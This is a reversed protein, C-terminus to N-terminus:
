FLRKNRKSESNEKFGKALRFIENPMDQLSIVKKIFGSEIAVKPMGYVVCDEEAEAITYGGAEKIVRCGETGDSGMGTLIVGVCNKGFVRAVSIFLKNISPKPGSTLNKSIKIRYDKGVEMDSEAPALLIEGKKLLDGHRAEKVKMKCDRSLWEALGEVFGSAIHQAVVVPSDIKDPFGAFIDHLAKCGGTSSGFAVIQHPLSDQWKLVMNETKPSLEKRLTIQSLDKIKTIFKAGLNEQGFLTPKQMIDLAGLTFAEFEIYPKDEFNITTSVLIPTPNKHMIEAIAEFGDMGAMKLDMTIVQPKLLPVMEVAEKGNAALGVVEITKDRELIAKLVKRSVESDDVILVRIKGM